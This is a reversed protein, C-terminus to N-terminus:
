SDLLNEADWLAMHFAPNPETLRPATALIERLATELDTIRLRLQVAHETQSESLQQMLSKAGEHRISEDPNEHHYQSM